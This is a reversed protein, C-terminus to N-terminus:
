LRLPPALLQNCSFIFYFCGNWNLSGRQLEKCLLGKHIGSPQPRWVQMVPSFAKKEGVTELAKYSAVLYLLKTEDKTSASFKLFIWKFIREAEYSLAACLLGLCGAAEQRLEQLLKSSCPCPPYLPHTLPHTSPFVLAVSPANTFRQHLTTNANRRTLIM